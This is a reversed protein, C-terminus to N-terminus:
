RAGREPTGFQKTLEARLVPPLVGVARDFDAAAQDAQALAGLRESTVQRFTREANLVEVITLAGAAFGTQTSQLVARADGVISQDYQALAARAAELRAAAQVTEARVQAQAGTVRSQAAEATLDEQRILERRTGYDLPVTIVVGLGADMYKPTIQAIRFEPALDPRGQARALSAQAHPLDRSAEAQAIEGRAALAQRQALVSDVAPASAPEPLAAALPDLPARGLYANLLARAAQEEGAAQAESVRARAAEIATLRAEIGPRAGLAVQKRALADFEETVRRVDGALRLQEQARALTNFDTRATYVLSQLQVLAQAETLRLQAEAVETRAGRTGNLELPQEFLLGDTTGGTQFAPAITFVPPSLAAASRVGARAAFVDKLAAISGLSRRVALVVASDATLVLPVAGPTVTQLSSPAAAPLPQGFANPATPSPFPVSTGSIPIQPSMPGSSSSAGYPAIGSSAAGASPVQNSPMYSPSPESTAAPSAPAANPTNATPQSSASPGAASPGAASPGAPATQAQAATRMGAALLVLATVPFFHYAQKKSRPLIMTQTTYGLNHKAPTERLSPM